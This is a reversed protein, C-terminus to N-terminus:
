PSAVPATTVSCFSFTDPGACPLAVAPDTHTHTHVGCCPSLLQRLVVGRVGALGVLKWLALSSSELGVLVTHLTSAYETTPATTRRACPLGPLV